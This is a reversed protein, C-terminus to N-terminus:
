PLRFALGARVQLDHETSGSVFQDILIRDVVEVRAGLLDSVAFRAGAAVELALSTSGGDTRDYTVGGPCASLFPRVDGRALEYAFGLGYHYAVVRQEFSLADGLGSLGALACIEAACQLSTTRRLAHAPAILFEGELWGRGGVRRAVQFGQLFSGGLSEQQRIGDPFLSRLGGGPLLEQIAGPVDIPFPLESEADVGLFSAGFALTVEWRHDAAPPAALASGSLALSILFAAPASKL